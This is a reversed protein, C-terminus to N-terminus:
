NVQGALELLPETGLLGLNSMELSNQVGVFLGAINRHQIQDAAITLRFQRVRQLIIQCGAFEDYIQPCLAVRLKEAICQQVSKRRDSQTQISARFRDM